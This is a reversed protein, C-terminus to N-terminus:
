QSRRCAAMVQLQGKQDGDTAGYGLNRRCELSVTSTHIAIVAVTSASLVFSGAALRLNDRFTSHYRCRVRLAEIADLVCVLSRSRAVATVRLRM